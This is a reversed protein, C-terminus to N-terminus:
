GTIAPMSSDVGIRRGTIREPVLRVWVPDMPNWPVRRSRTAWALERLTDIVEAHGLVMVSWGSLGHPDLGDVEFAVKPWHLAAQLKTRNNTPFVINGTEPDLTHNVPFIEPAGDVMVALRGLSCSALLHVCEQQPIEELRATM